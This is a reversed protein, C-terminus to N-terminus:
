RLYRNEYGAYADIHLKKRYSLEQCTSCPSLVTENTMNVSVTSCLAVTTIGNNDSIKQSRPFRALWRHRTGDRAPKKSLAEVYFATLIIIAHFERLLKM